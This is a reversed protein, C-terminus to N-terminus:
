IRWGQLAYRLPARYLGVKLPVLAGDPVRVGAIEGVNPLKLLLVDATRTESASVPSGLIHTLLSELGGYDNIIELAEEESEYQLAPAPDFGRYAKFVDKAFQCCDFLGYSFHANGWERTVHRVAEYRTV